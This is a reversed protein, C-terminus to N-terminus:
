KKAPPMPPTPPVDILATGDDATDIVPGVKTNGLDIVQGETTNDVTPEEEGAEVLLETVAIRILQSKDVASKTKELTKREKEAIQAQLTAVQSKLSLLEADSKLTEEAAEQLQESIGIHRERIERLKAIDAEYVENFKPM